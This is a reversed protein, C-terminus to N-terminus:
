LGLNKRASSDKQYGYDLDVKPNHFRVIKKWEEVTPIRLGAKKTERIAASTSFYQEGTSPVM